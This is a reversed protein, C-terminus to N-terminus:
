LVETVLHEQRLLEILSQIHEQEGTLEVVLNGLAKENIYEISGHMINVVVGTAMAAQYLLPQTANSKTYLIHILTGKVNQRINDPLTYRDEAALFQKSFPHQPASFLEYATNMEVIEGDSMIAVRDCIKKVVDIEHTILVITLGFERNLRQLLELISATTQPDLASTAEDCLLIRADNALARAIGVRQKQGGSLQSPYENRKDSLGVLDLLATVRSEIEARSKGAAKLVFAINDYVTKSHVLNFNQFIMGVQFRFYQLAKGSLTALDVGDVGVYGSTPSALRNLTRLLSSKGAGSSGIIGFIEGQKVEFTAHKVAHVVKNKSQYTISVDKVNIITKSM